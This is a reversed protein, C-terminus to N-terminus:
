LLFCSFAMVISILDSIGTFVYNVEITRVFFYALDSSFYVNDEWRRRTVWTCNTFLWISDRVPTADGTAKLTDAQERKKKEEEREREEKARQEQEKLAALQQQQIQLQQLHQQQQQILQQQQPSGPLM